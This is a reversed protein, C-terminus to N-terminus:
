YNMGFLLHSYDPKYIVIQERKLGLNLLQNCANETDKAISIVFVAKSYLSVAKAPQIVTIGQLKTGDLEKRNDCYAVVKGPYRNECLAHFFTGYKGAGFIVISKDGVCDLCEKLRNVKSAYAEVCEMYLKESSEKWIQLLNWNREGLLQETVFVKDAAALLWGRLIEIEEAYEKWYKGSLAMNYFRSICQEAMKKYIYSKWEQLPEDDLIIKYEDFLYKFAKANYGSANMNDQRYHYVIKDLYLAKTSCNLVRYIFGIDQYAAGPTENLRIKKVFEAKYLGLWLFRDTPFLEPHESPNRESGEGTINRIESIFVIDKSIERFALGNGKVYDYDDNNMHKYLTEYMDEEIYDDTEVVGIYKGKALSIGMNMQYGYSKKDSHILQIRSDKSAYEQVIEVTGDTSGADIFLIELDTFTQNIVSEICTRIYKAVNLAPMIVTIEPM